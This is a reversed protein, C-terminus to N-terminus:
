LGENLQENGNRRYDWDCYFKEDFTERPPKGYKLVVYVMYIVPFPSLFYLLFILGDSLGMMPSLQFLLAFMTVSGVIGTVNKM